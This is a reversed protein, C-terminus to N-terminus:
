LNDVGCRGRMRGLILRCYFSSSSPYCYFSITTTAATHLFCFLHLPPPLLLLSFCYFDPPPRSLSPFVFYIHHRLFFFFFLFKTSTTIFTTVTPSFCFFHPPIPPRSFDHFNPQPQPPFIEFENMHMGQVGPIQSRPMSCFRAM